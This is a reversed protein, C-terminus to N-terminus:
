PVASLVIFMIFIGIHVFGQMVSTRGPLLTIVSVFMALVLLATRQPELGLVLQVHSFAAVLTIIPVTLAVSALASGLALNIATQPRNMLSARIAAICEPALVLAAIVVGAFEDPLGAADIGAHLAPSLMKAQLVVGILAVVLLVLSVATVGTSPPEAKISAADSDDAACLFYDRHRMTQVFIFSGYLLISVIAVATLQADSYTPGETTTTYNPVILALASLTGLVALYASTGTVQHVQEYHKRGGLLLVIGLMGTLVLMVASYVTDRAITPGGDDSTLMLMAILGVEIITVAVALLIAGFPEGIRAAVIEAHHVGAFITGCLIIVEVALLLLSSKPLMGSFYVAILIVSLIPFIIAWRPNTPHSHAAM